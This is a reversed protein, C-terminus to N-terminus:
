RGSLLKVLADLSNVNEKNVKSKIQSYTYREVINSSSSYFEFVGRADNVLVITNARVHRRILNMKSSGFRIGIELEINNATDKSMIITNAMTNFSVIGTRLAALRNGSERKAAENYYGSMDNNRIRFERKIDDVGMLLDPLTIGGSKYDKMRESWGSGGKVAQFMLELNSTTAPIPIQRFTLPFNVERGDVFVSANVTRGLALPVYETLNRFEENKFSVSDSIKKNTEKEKAEKEKEEKEKERANKQKLYDDRGQVTYRPQNFTECGQLCMFGASRNPNISDVLEAIQVGGVKSQFNIHTLADRIDRMNIITMLDLMYDQHTLSEEFVTMPSIISRGASQSLNRTTVINYAKEADMLFGQAKTVDAKGFTEWSKLLLAGFTFINSVM